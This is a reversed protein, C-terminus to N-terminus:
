SGRSGRASCWTLPPAGVSLSPHLLAGDFPGCTLHGKDYPGHKVMFILSVDQHYVALSTPFLWAHPCVASLYAQGM